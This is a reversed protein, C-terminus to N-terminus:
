NNTMHYITACQMSCVSETKQSKKYKECQNNSMRLYIVINAWKQKELKPLIPQSSVYIEHEYEYVYLIIHLYQQTAKLVMVWKM